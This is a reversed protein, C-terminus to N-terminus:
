GPPPLDERPREGARGPYPAFPRGFYGALMLGGAILLGDGFAIGVALLGAAALLAPRAAGRRYAERRDVPRPGAAPAPGTHPTRDHRFREAADALQRNQEPPM